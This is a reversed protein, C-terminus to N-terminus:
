DSELKPIKGNYIVNHLEIVKNIRSITFKLNDEQTYNIKTGQTTPKLVKIPCLGFEEFAKVVLLIKRLSYGRPDKENLEKSLVKYTIQCSVIKPIRM